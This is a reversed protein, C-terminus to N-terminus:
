TKQDQTFRESRDLSGRSTLSDPPGTSPPQRRLARNLAYPVMVPIGGPHIALCFDRFSFPPDIRLLCVTLLLALLCIPLCLLSRLSATVSPLSRLSGHISCVDSQDCHDGCRSDEEDDFWLEQEALVQRVGRRLRRFAHKPECCDAGRDEKMTHVTLRVLQSATGSSSISTYGYTPRFMPSGAWQASSKLAPASVCAKNTRMM